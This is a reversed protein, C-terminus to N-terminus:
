ILTKLLQKDEKSLQLYEKTQMLAIVKEIRGKDISSVKVLMIFAYVLMLISLLCVTLSGADGSYTTHAIVTNGAGILLLCILPIFIYNLLKRKQAIKQNRASFETVVKKFEDIEKALITCQAENKQEENKNENM